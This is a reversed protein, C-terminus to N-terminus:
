PAIIPQAKLAPEAIATGDFTSGKEFWSRPAPAGWLTQRSPDKLDWHIPEHDPDITQYDSCYIEIRHGDPDLIYLFFANSIGHRGPGREINDRWGTTSMLDLLDIINLPTPVWFATHHLRPGSGNTFAVDHVGGKRHMWAAWVKKTEADETYETVRFGMQNYFAVAGDVDSSFLNFHDIRLPKVGRYLAYKQAINPLRDMKAYFELPVGWPDRTQLVRGMFSREIWATPLDQDKFWAEAKDLDQEDFLKFGLRHVQASNAERLIICHHGREEMARLMLLGDEEHTIQLGLTDVWFARSRALDTVTYEVHSLRLINFPPYLVPAPVPM